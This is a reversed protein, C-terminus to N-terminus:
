RGHNDGINVENKPKRGGKKVITIRAKEPLCYDEIQIGYEAPMEAHGEIVYKTLPFESRCPKEQQADLKGINKVQFKDDLFLLSIPYDVNKNWFSYEGPQNFAFMACEDMDLPSSHMLGRALEEPKTATFRIHLM